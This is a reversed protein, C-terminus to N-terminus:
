QWRKHSWLYNEPEQRIDSEVMAYYRDMIQQPEMEAANDCIPVFEANYHGRAERKMSMYCVAMGLKHALTAAGSMTRCRQGMFNVNINDSGKFYPRQDTNMFYFRKENRHRLVFRMINKSEVYAIDYNKKEVTAFRNVRMFDDWIKSSLRRYVVTMNDSNYGGNDGANNCAEFGGILEWNGTHAFMVMVSPSKEILEATLEPNIVKLIGANNFKKSDCGGYWIAEVILEALHNYFEDCINSIENYRKEPFSRALNTMVVDRRYHLLDKMLWKIFSSLRYAAGLPIAALIKMLGKLVISGLKKM